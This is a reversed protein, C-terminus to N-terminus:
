QKLETKKKIKAAQGESLPLQQLLVEELKPMLTQKLGVVFTEISSMNKFTEQLGLDQTIKTEKGQDDTLIIEAKMKKSKKSIISNNKELGWL